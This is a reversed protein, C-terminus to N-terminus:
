SLLSVCDRLAVSEPFSCSDFKVVKRLAIGSSRLKSEFADLMVMRAGELSAKASKAFELRASATAFSGPSKAATSCYWTRLPVKVELWIVLVLVKM